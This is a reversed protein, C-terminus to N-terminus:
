PMPSTQRRGNTLDFQSPADGVQDRISAIQAQAPAAASSLVGIVAVLAAMTSKPSM